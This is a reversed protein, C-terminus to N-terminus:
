WQVEQLFPLCRLSYSDTYEQSDDYYLCVDNTQIRKMIDLYEISNNQFCKEQIRRTYEEKDWPLFKYHRLIFWCPVEGWKILPYMFHCSRYLLDKEFFFVAQKSLVPTTGFKRLRPGGYIEEYLRKSGPKGSRYLIYSNKDFYRFYNLFPERTSSQSFLSDKAYMDLMYGWIRKYGLRNAKQIMEKLSHKESGIYDLLEDSDVVICWRDIGNLVLLREIWAEKKQTQFADLIQYVKTGEQKTLFELTGDDSGNDLIVFQEVGLRRYHDFFVKMRELENKVVVFVTPDNRNASPKLNDYILTFSSTLFARLQAYVLHKRKDYKICRNYKKYELKYLEAPMQKQRFSNKVFLFWGPITHKCLTKIFRM